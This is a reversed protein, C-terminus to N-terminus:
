WKGKEKLAEKMEKLEDKTKMTVIEKKRKELEEYFELRKAKVDMNEMFRYNSPGIELFTECLKERRPLFYDLFKTAIKQKDRGPAKSVDGKIFKVMLDYQRKSETIFTEIFKNNLRTYEEKSLKLLNLRDAGAEILNSSVIEICYFYQYFKEGHIYCDDEYDKQIENDMYQCFLEQFEDWKGNLFLERKTGMELENLAYTSAGNFLARQEETAPAFVEEGYNYVGLPCVMLRKEEFSLISRKQLWSLATLIQYKCRSFIEDFFLSTVPDDYPFGLLYNTFGAEGFYQNFQDNVLGLIEMLKKTTIRWTTSNEEKYLKVLQDCIIERLLVHYSDFSEQAEQYIEYVVYSNKGEEKRLDCFRKIYNLQATKSDSSLIPLKLHLCLEKYSKFKQGEKLDDLSFGEPTEQLLKGIESM